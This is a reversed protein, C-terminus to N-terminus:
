SWPLPDSSLIFDALTAAFFCSAWFRTVVVHLIIDSPPASLGVNGKLFLWSHVSKCHKENFWKCSNFTIGVTIQQHLFSKALIYIREISLITWFRHWIHHWVNVYKEQVVWSTSKAPNPSYKNFIGERKVCINVVSYFYM